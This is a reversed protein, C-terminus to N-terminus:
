KVGACYQEAGVDRLWEDVLFRALTGPAPLEPLHEPEFWDSATVEEGDAKLEGGAWEARFGVMINSPFPWVQSKVYRINTLEISAEEQAERRVADEFSEGPDVFGAVLTWNSVRYHSNKQLLIRRRKSVSVIVAPCIKPYALYGCSPCVFAHETEKPHRTMPTGCKGCFKNVARWEELEAKVAAAKFEAPTMELMRRRLWQQEPTM